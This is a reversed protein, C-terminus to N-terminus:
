CLIKMMEGHVRGNSALIEQMEPVFPKGKFNTVKGGAERLILMGAATDWPRLRLEWFGDFRGCAVYCLNLAASGDRRVGQSSLVMKRFHRFINGPRKYADYPFGTVVLSKILLSTKSVSISRGNLYAGKGKVASFLEDRV